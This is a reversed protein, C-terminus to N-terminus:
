EQREKQMQELANMRVDDSKAHDYITRWYDAVSMGILELIADDPRVWERWQRCLLEKFRPDFHRAYLVFADESIDRLHRKGLAQLMTLSDPTLEQYPTAPSAPEKDGVDASANLARLARAAIEKEARSRNPDRLVETLAATRNM